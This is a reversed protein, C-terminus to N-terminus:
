QVHLQLMTDHPTYSEYVHPTTCVYMYVHVHVILMTRNSLLLFPFNQFGGDGLTYIKDSVHLDLVQYQM